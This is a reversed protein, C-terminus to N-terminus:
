TLKDAADKLESVLRTYTNATLTPTSHRALKQAAALGVGARALRTIYLVRTAHFDARGDATEYPIGCAELDARLMRAGRTRWDRWGAFVPRGAPKGALWAAVAAGVAAPVPQTDTRRRKSHGARVTASVAVGGAVEFSEPTLSALESIRFGTYAALRYLMARDQGSLGCLPGHTPTRALLTALEADALARRGFTRTEDPNLKSVPEFVNAATIRHRAMWRGFSRLAGAYLNFTAHSWPEARRRDELFKAARRGDARDPLLLTWGLGAVTEKLQRRTQAVHHRARGKRALEDAYQDALPGLTTQAEAPPVELGQRVRLAALELRNAQAKTAALDRSGAVEVLRGAHDRYRIRYVGSHVRCRPPDTGAIVEATVTRGGRAKWRAVLKGDQTVVAAHPPVPKTVVKRYVTPM